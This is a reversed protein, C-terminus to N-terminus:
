GSDRKEVIFDSITRENNGSKAEVEGMTMSVTWLSAAGIM